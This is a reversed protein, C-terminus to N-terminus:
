ARIFALLQLPCAAAITSQAHFRGRVHIPAESLLFGPGQLRLYM